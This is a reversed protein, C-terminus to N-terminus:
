VIEAPYQSPIRLQNSDESELYHVSVPDDEDDEVVTAQQRPSASAGLRDM